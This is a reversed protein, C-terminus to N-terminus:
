ERDGADDASQSEAAKEAQKKEAKAKKKKKQTQGMRGIASLVKDVHPKLKSHDYKYKWHAHEYYVDEEANGVANDPYYYTTDTPKGNKRLRDEVSRKVLEIIVAFIPVGVVMGVLGFLGGMVTIAVLVALSSVGTNNGQIMPCLLNGDIQQIVIVLVLFLLFKEPNSILVILGSPIAGIFPGFVPIINTVACIAAILLNYESINCISLLIFTVVGVALADLLVGKIFGGFTRDVLQVVETIKGNQKDNFYAARFKAIQAKRKEKSSLIYFAIFLGLILDMFTDFLDLMFTWVNGILDGDLIFGQLFALIDSMFDEGAGFMDTLFATFKQMDSIDIRSSLEEPLKNIISQVFGLLSNLYVEYNTVLQSISDSLEPVILAIVIGILFFATLVTLLLSLGRRLNGRGLKRFLVYEYFKLIPNCLYAIVGGIVLPSIVDGLNTFMASFSDANAICYVTIAIIVCASFFLVRKPLRKKPPPLPSQNNNEYSDQM